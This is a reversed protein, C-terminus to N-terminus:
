SGTQHCADGLADKEGSFLHLFRFTRREKFQGFDKAKELAKRIRQPVIITKDELDKIEVDKVENLEAEKEGDGKRSPSALADAAGERTDDSRRVGAATRVEVELSYESSESM